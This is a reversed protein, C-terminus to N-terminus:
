YKPLPSTKINPSEELDKLKGSDILDQIICEITYCEDTTHGPIQHYHCYRTLDIQPPIPNPVIKSKHSKVLNRQQLMKFIRSLPQKFKSYKRYTLSLDVIPSELFEPHLPDYGMM